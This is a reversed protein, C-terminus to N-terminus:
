FPIDDPDIEEGTPEYIYISDDSQHYNNVLKFGIPLKFRFEIFEYISDFKWVRFEVAISVWDIILKYPFTFM